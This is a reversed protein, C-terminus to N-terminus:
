FNTSRLQEVTVVRSDRVWQDLDERIFVLQKPTPKSHPIQKRSTLKYVQHISIGLYEAAQRANMLNRGSPQPPVNQQVQKNQVKAQEAKEKEGEAKTAQHVGNNSPLGASANKGTKPAQAGQETKM